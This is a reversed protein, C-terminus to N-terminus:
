IKKRIRNIRLTGKAWDITPNYKRLWPLGLIMTQKGLSTVLFRTRVRKSGLYTNKWLCHRIPGQSNPTNDVNRVPIPHELPILELKHRKAFESDIFQGEAGSDILAETSVNKGQVKLEIPIRMTPNNMDSIIVPALSIPPRLM